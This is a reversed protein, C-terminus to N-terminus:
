YPYKYNIKLWCKTGDAGIYNELQVAAYKGNKLRVVFVHSNLTFAPPTPPVEIKLWSSLVKNVMIGQCGILSLLMQSQDEWVENESWEDEQFTAGLFASSNRPIDKMSTYKTELVAGGNTRVNNRHFALSWMQPEPQADTPRFSRKENVSIGKGFVDFWYTYVGTKGDSSGSTLTTPIAYRAFNTQARLLGATDKHEIYTQLSDFDVYCWDKWSTADVLLQGQTTVGQTAPVEDYVGDFIGNCATVMWLLACGALASISHVVKCM